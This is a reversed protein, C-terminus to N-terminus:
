RPRWHEGRALGGLGTWAFDMVRVALGDPTEERHELGWDSLAEAAGVLAHATPMAWALRGEEAEPGALLGAVLIVTRERVAHVQESFAGGQMRAQRYLVVWGGRNAAVFAFFAALGRYLQEDPALEPAGSHM